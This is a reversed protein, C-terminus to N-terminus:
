QIHSIHVTFPQHWMVNLALAVSEARWDTKWLGIFPARPVHLSHRILSSKILKCRHIITNNKTTWSLETYKVLKPHSWFLHVRAVELPTRYSLAWSVSHAKLPSLYPSCEAAVLLSCKKQTIRIFRSRLSQWCDVLATNWCEPLNTHMNM